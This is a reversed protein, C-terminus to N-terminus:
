FPVYNRMVMVLIIDYLIQKGLCNQPYPIILLAITQKQFGLSLVFPTQMRKHKPFVKLKPPESFGLNYCIESKNQFGPNVWFKSVTGFLHVKIYEHHLSALTDIPYKPFILYLHSNLCNNLSQNKKTSKGTHQVYM